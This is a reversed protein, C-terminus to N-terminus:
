CGWREFRARGSTEYLWSRVEPSLEEVERVKCNDALVIRRTRTLEEAEAQEVLLDLRAYAGNIGRVKDSVTRGAINFSIHFLAPVAVGQRM